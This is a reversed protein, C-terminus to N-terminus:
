APKDPAKPPPSPLVRVAAGELHDLGAIESRTAEAEIDISGDSMQASSTNSVRRSLRVYLESQEWVDGMLAAGQALMDAAMVPAQGAHRENGWLVKVKGMEAAVAAGLNGAKIAICSIMDFRECQDGISWAGREAALSKMRGLWEVIQPKSRLLYGFRRANEDTAKGAPHSLRYAPLVDLGDMLAQCFAADKSALKPLEADAM